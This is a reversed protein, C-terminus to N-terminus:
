NQGFSQRKALQAKLHKKLPQHENKELRPDLHLLNEAQTRALELIKEDRVLDAMRFQLLGSQQAGLLEGPGRIELDAQAIKFGDQTQEMLSLRQVSIDSVARGAVLICYSKEAGRGVRGRLQHLQALGFREAHEIVMVCAKPVDVGVEIVTTSVLVQIRGQRFRSMVAEKDEPPLRGHMLAFSLGPYAQRLREYEDTANQLDMKESEEILPYVVYAQHGKALLGALWNWLQSKQNQSIVRTTIPQRGPPLEDIVSVRLDGYATWSLTRPIPTATMTLVHPNQGKETLKTRQRVGFRHQEDIIVLGLNQFKVVEEILAHTGILLDMEFNELKQHLEERERAKTKGTLLGVRVGFASLIKQSNLFHQEALIETPAMLAAQFSNRKAVVVSMFAVWTKGSGVDGQVLRNMCRGSSLDLFIEDLVRRQARTPQFPLLQFDVDMLFDRMRLGVKQEREQRQYFMLLELEFFEDFILRQQGPDRFQALTQAQEPRPFHVRQLAEIKGVLGLKQRISEPLREFEGLQSSSALQQLASRILSQIKSSSLSESETYIPKLENRVEEAEQILTIQPHVFQLRGRFETLKGVIRLSAGFPFSEFYGRFPARFFHCAIKGTGDRVWLSTVKKRNFGLYHSTVELVQAKLSVVQGVKLDRICGMAQQNEYTRPFHHCLDEITEVGWARFIEALRPGVGKLFKVPSQPRLAPRFQDTKRVM